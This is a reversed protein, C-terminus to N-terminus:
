KRYRLTEFGEAALPLGKAWPPVTAMLASLEDANFEPTDPTETLLEDHVSLVIRYGRKEIEPMSYALVDRAFAQTCNHVILTTGDVGRVMFRQRPGCNLIDFVQTSRRPSRGLAGSAGREGAPLVHDLKQGRFGRGVLHGNDRGGLSEQPHQEGADQVHGLPLEGPHLRRQQGQPRPEAGTCVDSGHGGLIARFFDAVRRLGKGGARRLQAVSQAYASWVSGADRAVSRLGPSQDHRAHHQAARHEAQAHVRVFGTDRKKGTKPVREPGHTKGSRLRLSSGLGFNEGDNRRLSYSHPLRGEFRNHGESQSAHKWGETTLVRHDPTMDVGWVTIVKQEGKEIVGSHSVWQEGDWVRSTKAVKEIAVWGQPTLVETGEAICNEALKGSYTHIRQWKRTYQDLGMYSCRGKDDIEPSPYCLYRGSPLAIRLWSGDRRIRVSGCDFVFGPSEVADRFAQELMPWWAAIAPHGARWGRKVVDCGIFAADSMALPTHGPQKRQWELFNTAQEVLTPDANEMVGAALADLDINFATAFTSFAGVGGAYGLALEQVKGIQRNDKTVDEPAIGFSKAYALKYLDHGRRIPEGKADLALAPRRGELTAARLAAGNIWGGDALQVTDFLRFADCKWKEDALWALARGEINSLDAIVLKKGPAATLCGRIASSTVAMVNDYILGAAGAKLANIGLDVQSEPLSPRPLNQPQFTRGAWRATRSAGAFQLLGRIRGDLNTARQLALYKSTSTTSAQLRVRLLNKMAEPVDPDELRRELTSAQMDPLQIGYEALMHQLMADRQTATQVAGDTMEVTREALHAQEQAVADVAAHVLDMDVAIGRDNITQDLHWLALEDGRYNWTPLLKHVERMAEVDLRAYDEFEAWEAPHTDRTARAVKSAKGRPKCFMQVLQGGRKSKAKDEAVGLVECLTSLKGPMSHCLAQVMTDRWRAVPPAREPMFARLVTRDFMSNHAWVEEAEHLAVELYFPMPAGSTLDWVQAPDDDIAWAFLTIEANAAYRYTGHSIPTECYTEFDLWLKM